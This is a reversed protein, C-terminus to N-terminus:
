CVSCSTSPSQVWMGNLGGIMDGTIVTVTFHFLGGGAAEASVHNADCRRRKPRGFTMPRTFAFGTSPLMAGPNVGLIPLSEVARLCPDTPVAPIANNRKVSVSPDDGAAATSM